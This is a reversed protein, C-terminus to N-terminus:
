ASSPMRPGRQDRPSPSTYLLCRKNIHPLLCDLVVHALAGAIFSQMLHLQFDGMIHLLEEGLFFGSITLIVFGVYLGISAKLSFNKKLISWLLLGAPLRHLLIAFTFVDFGHDHGHDHGHHHEGHSLGVGDLVMHLCLGVLVLSVSFKKVKESPFFWLYEFLFFILFGFAGAVLSWIGIVEYSEPLIHVLVLFGVCTSTIGNVWSVLNRKEFFRWIFPGAVLILVGLILKEM